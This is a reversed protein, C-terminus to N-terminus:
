GASLGAVEERDVVREGVFGGLVSGWREGLLCALLHKCVPVGSDRCRGDLSEGGYEWDDGDHEKETKIGDGARSTGFSPFASFAFAACSCNWAEVRVIYTTGFSARDDRTKFRGKPPQSSKVLYFGKQKKKAEVVESGRHDQSQANESGLQVV